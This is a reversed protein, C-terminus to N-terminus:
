HFKKKYVKHDIGKTVLQDILNVLSLTDEM